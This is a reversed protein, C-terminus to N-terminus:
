PTVAAASLVPHATMADRLATVVAEPSEHGEGMLNAYRHQALIFFEAQHEKPVGMLTALAALYEGGGQAMEQSLTDFNVSAFANLKHEAWVKGNNRCGLTGSTIGFGQWPLVTNNTTSILIQPGISDTNSADQWAVKGLGCGPGADSIGAFAVNAQVAFLAAVLAILLRQSM